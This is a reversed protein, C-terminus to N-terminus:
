RELFADILKREAARLHQHFTSRGVGLAAAVDDGTAGRPRDFYGAAYATELATRQRDTLRDEIREIYEGRTEPVRERRTTSLLSTGPHRDRVREFVTRVDASEPLTFTLTARGDEVVLARTRGGSEALRGVISDTAPEVEIRCANERSALVTLSGIADIGEAAREIDDSDAGQVTFFLADGGTRVVSGAYELRCDVATSLTVFFLEPDTVELEVEVVTDATLIRRSEIVSMAAGIARGLARFVTVEREDVADRDTALVTLVGYTADRYQLPVAVTAGGADDVAANGGDAAPTSDGAPGGNTAAASVLQVAGTRVAVASPHDSAVPIREPGDGGPALEGARDGASPSAAWSSPVIADSAADRQGIWAAAYGDMAALRDCVSEELDDLSTALVIAETVADLLGDVRDLLRDLRAREERLAFEAEKRRTVDNQFGVFNILEGAEDYLPAVTVQNWFAEGDARYNLLEVTVPESADIADRFEAVREEQTGEGQLLRCNRGVVEDAAYGTVREFADNVYVLPNDERDPDTIAIGVPAEDMAREKVDIGVDLPDTGEVSEDGDSPGDADTMPSRESLSAM